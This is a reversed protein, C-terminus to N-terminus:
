FKLILVNWYALTLVFAILCLTLISYHLREIRTWYGKLWALVTFIISAIALVLISLSIVTLMTASTSVQGTLIANSDSVMATLGAIFILSLISAIGAVWRAIFALRTQAPLDSKRRNLIFGTPAIILLTIFMLLCVALISYFFMPVQYWALKELGMFTISNLFAHSINGQADERFVLKDQGGVQEFLLPEVEVYRQLGM